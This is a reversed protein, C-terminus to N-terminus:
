KRLWRPRQQGRRRWERGRPLDGEGLRLWEAVPGSVLIYARSQRVAPNEQLDLASHQLSFQRLGPPESNPMQPSYLSQRTSPKSQLDPASHQLVMQSLGSPALSPMQRSNLSQRVEPNEQLDSESHQLSLQMLGSPASNPTQPSYLSQRM